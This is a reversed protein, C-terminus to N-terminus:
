ILNYTAKKEREDTGSKEAEGREAGMGRKRPEERRDEIKREERERKGKERREERGQPDDM